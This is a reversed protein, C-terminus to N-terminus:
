VTSKRDIMYFPLLAALPMLYRVAIVGGDSSLSLADVLWWLGGCFAILSALMGFFVALLLAQGTAKRAMPLDQGGVLRGVLATAGANVVVTYSTIFWYVYNANTLAAKHAESFPGALYQDYLQIVLLLGQQILAPWALRLIHRWISGDALTSAPTM